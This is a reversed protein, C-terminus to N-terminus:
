RRNEPTLRLVPCTELEGSFEDFKLEDWEARQAGISRDVRMRWGKGLRWPVDLQPGSVDVRESAVDSRQNRWEPHKLIGCPCHQREVSGSEWVAAGCVTGALSDSFTAVCIVSWLAASNSNSM